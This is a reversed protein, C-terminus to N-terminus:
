SDLFEKAHGRLEEISADSIIRFVRPRCGEPLQKGTVVDTIVFTTSRLGKEWGETRADHFSLSDPDIGAAVLIVRSWHLFDPWRSVVAILSDPPPLTEEEQLSEPVSHSRLLLCSTAPPLAARVRDAVGYLAVPFSGALRAADACEELSAGAVRFNTAERIEEALISRLEENPEIVLFRDPPQRELWHEVRERIEELSYGRERAIHLFTEILQDIELGTDLYASADPRARVYVGSGKRVAVWGREALEQYAASVTNSHIQFRRALERTSPLRQGPKLDQSVIGLMIQTALQERLPVESSKSLWLRMFFTILSSNFSLCEDSM